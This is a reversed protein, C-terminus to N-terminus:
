KRIGMIRRFRGSSGSTNVTYHVEGNVSLLWEHAALKPILVFIGLPFYQGIIWKTDAHRTGAADIRFTGSNRAL